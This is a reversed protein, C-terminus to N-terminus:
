REDDVANQFSHLSIFNYEVNDKFVASLIISIM